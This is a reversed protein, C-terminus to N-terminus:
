WIKKLSGVVQSALGLPTSKLVASYSSKSAKRLFSEKKPESKAKNQIEIMTPRYGKQSKSFTRLKTDKAEYDWPMSQNLKDPSIANKNISGVSGSGNGGSSNNGKGNILDKIVDWRIDTRNTKESQKNTNKLYRLFSRDVSANGTSDFLNQQPTQSLSAQSSDSIGSNKKGLLFGSGALALAGIILLATNNKSM